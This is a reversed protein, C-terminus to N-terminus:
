CFSRVHPSPASQPPSDGTETFTVFACLEALTSDCKQVCGDRTAKSLPAKLVDSVQAVIYCCTCM